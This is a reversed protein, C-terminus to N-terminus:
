HPQLFLASSLSALAFRLDPALDDRLWV